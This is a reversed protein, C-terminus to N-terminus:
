YMAITEKPENEKELDADSEDYYHVALGFIEQPEVYMGVARKGNRNNEARKQMIDFIYDCCKDISKGAKTLKSAMDARGNLYDEIAKKFSAPIVYSCGGKQKPTDKHETKPENNVVRKAKATSKKASAKAQAQEAQLKAAAQKLVNANLNLAM